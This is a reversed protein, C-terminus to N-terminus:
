QLKGRGTLYVGVRLSQLEMSSNRMTCTYVGEDDATLARCLHVDVVGVFSSLNAGRPQIVPGDCIGNHIMTGRFYIGGLEISSNGSPVLGSACRFLLGIGSTYIYSNNIIINEASVINGTSESGRILALGLLQVVPSVNKYM